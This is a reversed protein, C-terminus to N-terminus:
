AMDPCPWNRHVFFYEFAGTQTEVLLEFIFQFVPIQALSHCSTEFQGSSDLCAIAACHMGDLTGIWIELLNGIIEREVMFSRGSGDEKNSGGSPLM